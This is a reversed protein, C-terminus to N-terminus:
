EWYADVDCTGRFVETATATATPMALIIHLYTGPEVYLPPDFRKSITKDAAANVAAGIAFTQIGLMKKKPSRTTATDTTALSVATSGVGIIWELVTATTAVAAVTNIAHIEIGKVVLNKGSVAAAAVPVQYAFLAYDTNAGAVAAFQWKGGLTTYGAATNSLTASSPATSNAINALSGTAMGPAGQIANQGLSAMVESWSRGTQFGGVTVAYTSIRVGMAASTTGTNVDRVSFPLSAVSSPVGNGIPMAVHAQMKVYGDADRMNIWFQVFVEGFSIICDYFTGITPVFAAGASVLKFTASTTEVGAQCIVAQMGSANARIYCGDSPTFPNAAGATFLGVDITKNTVAWTGTYAMKWYLLTQAGSTLAFHKYTQFLLGTTTTTINGSNSTFPFSAAMTTATLKHKNFNQATQNILKDYDLLSDLEVRMRYDESVEAALGYPIGTVQGADVESYPRAYGALAFTQSLNVLVNGGADVPSKIDSPLGM